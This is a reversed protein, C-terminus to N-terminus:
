MNIYNMLLNYKGTIDEKNAEEGYVSLVHFNHREFSSVVAGLVTKNLKLTVELMGQSNTHVQSTLIMVDENECIRALEYMTYDRQAVELVIIGGPNDIGSNEAFYKLLTDKTVSGVYKEEEGVVPLVSLNMQNMIRLAEFPHTREHIAPRYHQLDAEGINNDPQELEVIVSEKLLALYKEDAVLPIEALKNDELIDLVRSGSDEPAVTPVDPSILQEISM